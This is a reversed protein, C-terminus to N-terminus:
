TAKIEFIGQCYCKGDNVALKQLKFEDGLKQLILELSSVTNADSSLDIVQDGIAQKLIPASLCLILDAAELTVDLYVQIPELLKLPQRKLAQPLNLHIETATLCVSSLHLQEYVVGIGSVSAKPMHGQLIQRDAGEIKVELSQLSEVQSRLWLKLLPSVVSRIVASM